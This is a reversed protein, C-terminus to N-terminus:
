EASPDYSRLCSSYEDFSNESIDSALYGERIYFVLPNEPIENSLYNVLGEDFKRRNEPLIKYDEFLEEHAEKILSIKDPFDRINKKSSSDQHYVCYSICSMVGVLPIVNAIGGNKLFRM